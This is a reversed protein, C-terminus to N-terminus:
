AVKKLGPFGLRRANFTQSRLIFSLHFFAPPFAAQGPPNTAHSSNFIAPVSSRLQMLPPAASRSEPDVFGGHIRVLGVDKKAWTGCIKM